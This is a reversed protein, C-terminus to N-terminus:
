SSPSREEPNSSVTLLVLLDSLPHRRSLDARDDNVVFTPQRPVQILCHAEDQIETPVVNLSVGGLFSAPGIQDPAPRWRVRLLSSPSRVRGRPQGLVSSM